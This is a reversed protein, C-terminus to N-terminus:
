LLVFDGCQVSAIDVICGDRVEVVAICLENSSLCVFLDSNNDAYDQADNPGGTGSYDPLTADSNVDIKTSENIIDTTTPPCHLDDVPFVYLIFSTSEITKKLNKVKPVFAVSIAFLMALTAFLSISLKRM